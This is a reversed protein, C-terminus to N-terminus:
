KREPIQFQPCAIKRFGSFEGTDTYDYEFIFICKNHLVKEIRKISSREGFLVKYYKGDLLAKKETIEDEPKVQFPHRYNSYFSSYYRFNKGM